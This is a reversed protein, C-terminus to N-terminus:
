KTKTMETKNNTQVVNYLQEDDAIMSDYGDKSEEWEESLEKNTYNTYGKFGYERIDALWSYDDNNINKMILYVDYQCLKDIIKQRESNKM